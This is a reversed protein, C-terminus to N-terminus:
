IKIDVDDLAEEFVKSIIDLKQEDSVIEYVCQEDEERVEELIYANEEEDSKDGDTVLLYNKGSITIQELVSFSVSSGDELTFCIVNQGDEM